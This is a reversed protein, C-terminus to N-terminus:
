QPFGDIRDLSRSHSDVLETRRAVTPIWQINLVGERRCHWICKHNKNPWIELPSFILLCLIGNENWTRKFGMYNGDAEPYMERIKAVLLLLFTFHNSSSIWLYQSISAHSHLQVLIIPFRGICAPVVARKGKGMRGHLFLIATRYAAKRSARHMQLWNTPFSSIRNLHLHFCFSKESSCNFNDESFSFGTRDMMMGLSLAMLRDFLGSDDYYM